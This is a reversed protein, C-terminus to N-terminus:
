FQRSLSAGDRMYPVANLRTYAKASATSDCWELGVGFPTQRVVSAVLRSMLDDDGVAVFPELYVLSLLRLQVRTEMFAGTLSVNIVRGTGITAPLAVFRVAVDTSKRHGWRHEM